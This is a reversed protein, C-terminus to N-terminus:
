ISGTNVSFSKEIQHKGSATTHHKQERCTGGISRQIDLQLVAGGRPNGEDAPQRDSYISSPCGISDTDSSIGYVSVLSLCSSPVKQPVEQEVISHKLMLIYSDRM